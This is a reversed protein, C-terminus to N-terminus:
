SCIFESLFLSPGLPKHNSWYVGGKEWKKERPKEITHAWCGLFAGHGQRQNPITPLSQGDCRIGSLITDNARVKQKKLLYAGYFTTIKTVISTAWCFHLSPVPIMIKPIKPSNKPIAFKNTSKAWRMMNGNELVPGDPRRWTGWTGTVLLEPRVSPNQAIVRDQSRVM